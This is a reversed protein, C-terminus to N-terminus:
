GEYQHNGNPQHRSSPHQGPTSTTYGQNRNAAPHVGNMQAQPHSIYTMPQLGGGSSSTPRHDANNLASAISSAAMAPSAFKSPDVNWRAVQKGNEHRIASDTLDVSFYIQSNFIHYLHRRTYRQHNLKLKVQISKLESNCFIFRIIINSSCAYCRIEQVPNQSKKRTCKLEYM